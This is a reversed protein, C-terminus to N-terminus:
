KKVQKRVEGCRLMMAGFYPNNIEEKNALWTAGKNGFAMPCFQIYLPSNGSSGFNEVLQALSQSLPYFAKRITELDKAQKLRQMDETISLSLTSALDEGTELLAESVAEALPELATIDEKAAEPNDAALNLALSLYRTIVDGTKERLLPSGLISATVDNLSFRKRLSHFHEAFVAYIRTTEEATDAESLLIIDSGLLMSIEQWSLKDDETLSDGSIAAFTSSFSKLSKEIQDPSGDHIDKSLEAFSQNLLDLRSIFLTPYTKEPQNSDVLYPNMMSPRAQLQIASDIKFNGRTVVLEGEQLGSKVQYFNGQRPGLIVERGIYTGPQEPVQVYVLARKGTRLPASLPILLPNDPSSETNTNSSLARVFMGPKLKADQNDVNLRVRVTRSKDNVLPDIYAVEGKFATGPYSEVTFNVEQGISIAQLDSEYAELIVWVRDLDALTYIPSGTKVYMGENVDKKIVIGSLPATLTINDTPKGLKEIGRLQKDDLGLLRLKERSAALTRASTKKIIANNSDKSRNYAALAQILEAQATILEPSYINVMAQGRQVYSGTYDVFLKDIRGNVWSTITGVRTEDYDIKGVMHIETSARGRIVPQVEVEALRRSRKNFSIQRLSQRNADSEKRIEILDMFCIPCQGPEPLQIQPHMSCTWITEETHDQDTEAATARNIPLVVLCFTIIFFLRFSQM